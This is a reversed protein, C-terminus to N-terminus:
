MAKKGVSRASRSTATVIGWGLLLAFYAGVWYVATRRGVLLAILAALPVVVALVWPMALFVYSILDRM